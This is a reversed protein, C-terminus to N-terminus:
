ENAGGFILRDLEYALVPSFIVALTLGVLEFIFEGIQNAYITISTEGHLWMTFFLSWLILLASLSAAFVGFAMPKPLSM